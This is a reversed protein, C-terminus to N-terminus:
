FILCADLGTRKNGDSFIHNSIINFLYLGVKQYENPYISEGFLEANVFEVLYDLANENLLNLPPSFNGGFRSINNKNLFLIEEKTLIRIM